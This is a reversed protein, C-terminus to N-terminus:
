KTLLLDFRYHSNILDPHQSLVTAGSFGVYKAMEMLIEKKFWTGVEPANNKISNFYATVWEPKNHYVFLRDIDLIDGILFIGGPMLSQYITEFVGITERESFFQLAFYMVGKSFAESPLRVSRVDEKIVTISPYLSTDIKKLLAESVDIATVSKCKLSLPMALLGAGACLDLLTDGPKLDLVREIESLHFQWEQPGIPIKNITRGVQCQPNENEIIQNTTWFTVWYDNKQEASNM